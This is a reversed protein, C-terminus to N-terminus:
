KGYNNNKILTYIPIHSRMGNQAICGTNFSDNEVSKLIIGNIDYYMSIM